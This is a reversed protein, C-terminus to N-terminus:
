SSIRLVPQAFTNELYEKMYMFRVIVNEIYSFFRGHIVEFIQNTM